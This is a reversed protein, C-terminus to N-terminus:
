QSQQMLDDIMPAIGASLGGDVVLNIGNIYSAEDSALFAVAAAIDKPEGIRGVPSWRALKEVDKSQPPDRRKAIDLEGRITGPSVMNCRIGAHGYEVAISRTLSLLGAKAASFAPHGLAMLANVSGMNIIVGGGLEVMHRIIERSALYATKLTANIDRDWDEGDTEQIITKNAVAANNILVDIGGMEKRARDLGLRIDRPEDMDVHVDLAEGGAAVIAEEIKKAARDDADIIAVHAGESAFRRAVSEGIGRGAGTVIVKKDEFRELAM